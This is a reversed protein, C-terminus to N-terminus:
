SFVAAIFQRVHDVEQPIIQHAMAFEHWEVDFGAERLTLVSSKSAEFPLLPDQTGHAAFIPTQLPLRKMQRVKEAEMLFGSLAIVAGLKEKYNLMVDLSMGAGQSFGFLVIKGCDIGRSSIEEIAAVITRRSALREKEFHENPPIAFWGRGQGWTGPVECEGELFVLLANDFGLSRGLPVLDQGNAGWGHLFIITGATPADIPPIEFM